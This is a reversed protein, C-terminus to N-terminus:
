ARARPVHIRDKVVYGREKCAYTSCEGVYKWCEEHHPTLCRACRVVRERMVQGCVQCQGSASSTEEIWHIGVSSELELVYSVFEEATRALAEVEWEVDLMRAVRVVLAQRSLEVRPDPFRAVRALSALARGRQEETFLRLAISRPQAAVRFRRGTPPVDVSLASPDLLFSWPGAFSEEIGRLTGPSRGRMDVTVRTSEGGGSDVWFFEIRAPRGWARFAVAPYGGAVPEVAGGLRRAVRALVDDFVKRSERSQRGNELWAWLVGALLVGCLLVLVIGPTM